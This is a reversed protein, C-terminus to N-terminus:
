QEKSTAPVISVHSGPISTEMRQRIRNIAQQVDGMTRAPEFELFLDIYVETGSRRCRWGHFQDYEDFSRALERLIDIQLSEDLTGDILEYVSASLLRYATVLMFGAVMASGAIDIYVVSPDNKLLITLTLTVIVCTNVAVKSRFMRWQSEMLPSHERLSLGYYHRWFYFDVACSAVALVLGYGVQGPVPPNQLRLAMGMVVIFVTVLIVGAVVLSALSELKGYGFHHIDDRGRNTRRLSFLAFGVALGESITRFLDTVQTLSGGAATTFIKLVICGAIFFLSTSLSADKERLLSQRAIRSEDLDPISTGATDKM